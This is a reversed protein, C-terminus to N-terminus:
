AKLVYRQSDGIGQASASASQRQKYFYVNIVRIIYQTWGHVLRRLTLTPIAVEALEHNVETQGASSAFGTLIRVSCFHCAAYRM